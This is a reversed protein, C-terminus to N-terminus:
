CAWLCSAPRLRHIAGLPRGVQRRRLRSGGPRRSVFIARQGSHACQGSRPRRRGGPAAFVGTGWGHNSALASRSAVDGRLCALSAVIGPRLAHPDGRHTGSPRPQRRGDSIGASLSGASARPDGRYRCWTPRLLPHGPGGGCGLRDGAAHVLALRHHHVPGRSVLHEARALAAPVRCPAISRWCCRNAGHASSEKLRCQHEVLRSGSLRNPSKRKYWSSRIAM